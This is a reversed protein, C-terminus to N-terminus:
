RRRQIEELNKARLPTDSFLAKILRTLEGNSFEFLEGARLREMIAAFSSDMLLALHHFKNVIPIYRQYDQTRLLEICEGEFEILASNLKLSEDKSIDILGEVETLIEEMVADVLLGMAKLFLYDPLVSKWVKALHKLQHSVLKITKSVQAERADDQMGFGDAEAISQILSDRQRTLQMNFYREGLRRFEVVSDTFSLVGKHSGLAFTQFPIGLYLLQHAIYMCDNHFVMCLQPVSDFKTSHVSPMVIRYLDLAERVSDFLKPTSANNVKLADSLTSSILKLFKVTRASIACSPFQFLGDFAVAETAQVAITTNALPPICNSVWTPLLVQDSGEKVDVTDYQSKVLVARVKELLTLTTQAIFHEDIKSCYESLKRDQDEILGGSLLENEFVSCAQSVIKFGDLQELSEPVCKALYKDIVRPAIDGAYFQRFRERFIHTYGTTDSKDKIETLDFCFLHTVLFRMIEKLRSFVVDPSTQSWPAESSEDAKEYKLRHVLCGRDSSDPETTVSCSSAPSSLVAELARLCFRLWPAILEAGHGSAAASFISGPHLIRSGDYYEKAAIIGSTDDTDASLLDSLTLELRALFMQNCTDYRAQVQAFIHVDDWKPLQDLAGEMSSLIVSAKQFEKQGLASDFVTSGQHFSSLSMLIHLYTELADLKSRAEQQRHNADNLKALFGNQPEHLETSLRDLEAFYGQAQGEIRQSDGLFTSLEPHTDIHHSLEFSLDSIAQNLQDLTCQITEATLKQSSLAASPDPDADDIADVAPPLASPSCSPQAAVIEAVIFGPVADIQSPKPAPM